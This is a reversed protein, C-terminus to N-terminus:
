AAVLTIALRDGINHFVKWCKLKVTSNQKAERDGHETGLEAVHVGGIVIRVVWALDGHHRSSQRDINRPIMLYLIHDSVKRLPM